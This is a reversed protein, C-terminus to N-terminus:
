RGFLLHLIADRQLLLDGFEFRLDCLKPLAARLEHLHAVSSGSLSGQDFAVERKSRLQFLVRLLAGIYQCCNLIQKTPRKGRVAPFRDARLQTRFQLVRFECNGIHSIAGDRCTRDDGGGFLCDSQEISVVCDTGGAHLRKRQTLARRRYGGMPGFPFLGM